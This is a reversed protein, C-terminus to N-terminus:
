RPSSAKSRMCASASGCFLASRSMGLTCRLLARLRSWHNLLQVVRSSANYLACVSLAKLMLAIARCSPSETERTLRSMAWASCAFSLAQGLVTRNLRNPIFYRICTEPKLVEVQVLHLTLVFLISAQGGIDLTWHGGIDVIDVWHGSGWHGQLRIEIGRLEQVMVRVFFTEDGIRHIERDAAFRDYAM